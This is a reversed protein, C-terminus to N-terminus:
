ASAEVVTTWTRVAGATELARALDGAGSVSPALAVVCGGRGAGTLKAGLSGAAHAARVLADLAPSSV